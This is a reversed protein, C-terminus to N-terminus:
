NEVTQSVGKDIFWIRQSIQSNEYRGNRRKFNDMNLNLLQSREKSHQLDSHQLVYKALQKLLNKLLPFGPKLLPGLLRGLFKGSQAM